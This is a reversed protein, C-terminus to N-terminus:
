SEYEKINKFRGWASQRYTAVSGEPVYLVVYEFCASKFVDSMKVKWIDHLDPNDPLMVRRLLPHAAFASDEIEDVRYNMGQYNVMLPIEIVSDRENAACVTVLGGGWSKYELNGITFHAVVDYLEAPKTVKNYIAVGSAGLVLFVFICVMTILRHQFSQIHMRLAHVNPYRQELPRLCHKAAWRYSLGLHMEKLIVGLSYIDNRVDTPGGKQQEPSVYGDTGAPEKLIAYSDADALGFDILKLVSGNRTVMMNSPKLDRHVVQMDHVFELVVLLQNAIHVREAKSHHQQLWEELTVGDIWEMVLCKGYGDVEEIGMVEAVGPHQVHKMIDFEKQFLSQYVESNRVAPALAKLIWWRGDRKARILINFGSVSIETMNSFQASTTESPPFYFGSVQEMCAFICCKISVWVIKEFKIEKKFLIM